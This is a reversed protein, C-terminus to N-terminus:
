KRGQEENLEAQEQLLKAKMEEFKQRKIEETEVKPVIDKSNKRWHGLTRPLPERALAEAVNIEATPKPYERRLPDVPM